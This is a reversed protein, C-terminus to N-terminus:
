ISPARLRDSRPNPHACNNPVRANSMERFHCDCKLIKESIRHWASKKSRFLSTSKLSALFIGLAGNVGWLTLQTTIKASAKDTQKQPNLRCLHNQGSPRSVNREVTLHMDGLFHM